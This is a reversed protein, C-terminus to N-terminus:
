SLYDFRAFQHFDIKYMIRCLLLDTEHFLESSIVDIDMRAFTLIVKRVLRSRNNTIFEEM